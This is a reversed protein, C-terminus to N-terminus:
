HVVESVSIFNFVNLKKYKYLCNQGENEKTLFRINLSLYMPPVLTLASNSCSARVTDM